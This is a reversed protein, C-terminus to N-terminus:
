GERSAASQPRRDATPWLWLGVREPQMTREVVRVLETSLTELDVEDRATAAFAALTQAADYKQRYFRRDILDQIRRRLPTFLAAILLTSIVIVVPSEQGTVASVISQLLLVVSFYILVLLGSLLGYVLTRRIIIDIDYLRYRLIAIAITVPILSTAVIFPLQFLFSERPAFPFTVAMLAGNFALWTLQKREVGRSRRFRAFLAAVACLVQGGFTLGLVPYFPGISAQGYPNDLSAFSSTMPGPNFALFLIQLLFLIPLAAAVPRWRRSPFRGDPFLLLVFSILLINSSWYWNLIWAVALGGPLSEPFVKLALIAYEFLAGQVASTLSLILGLWGVKHGPRRFLIAAAVVLFILAVSGAFGRFAWGEYHDANGLVASILSGLAILTTLVILLQALHHARDGGGLPPRQGTM